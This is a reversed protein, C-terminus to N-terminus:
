PAAGSSQNFYPLGSITMGDSILTSIDRTNIGFPQLRHQLLLQSNQLNGWGSNYGFSSKLNRKVPLSFNWVTLSVDVSTSGLSSSVTVTGTYTGAVAGRPVNIDIWFPSNQNAALTYPV